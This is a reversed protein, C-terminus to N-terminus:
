KKVRRVDQKQSNKKVEVQTQDWLKIYRELQAKSKTRVKMQRIFETRPMGMGKLNRVFEKQKRGMNIFIVIICVVWLALSFFFLTWSKIILGVLIFIAPVVIGAISAYKIGKQKNIEATDYLSRYVNQQYAKTQRRYLQNRNAM